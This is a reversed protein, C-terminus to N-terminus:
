NQRFLLNCRRILEQEEKRNLSELKATKMATEMFFKRIKLSKSSAQSESDDIDDAEVREMASHKGANLSPSDFLEDGEMWPDPNHLLPDIHIASNQLYGEM